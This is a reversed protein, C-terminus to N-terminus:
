TASTIRLCCDAMINPNWKGSHKKGMQSIDQHFREGHENSINGM